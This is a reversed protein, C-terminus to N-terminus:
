LCKEWAMKYRKLYEEESIITKLINEKGKGAEARVEPLSGLAKKIVDAIREKDGDAIFVVAGLSRVEEVIGVNTSVIPLGAAGAEFFVMGYGEYRSTHLFISASEYYDKLEERWGEFFVKDEIRLRGARKKLSEKLSGDGVIILATKELSKLAEAFSQLALSVNKEKELRGVMLIFNEFDPYKKRLFNKDGNGYFSPDTIRIPLVVPTNISSLRNVVISRKIRESVVRVGSARPLLFKAMIVRIKNLFSEKFFYPNLFDTHVQIHFKAKLKRAMLFAVLGSEFPDQASVIDIKKPLFFKSFSLADVIWFVKSISNTPYVYVNPSIRKEQFGKGTFCIIHLEEVISGHSIVRDQVASGDEFIRKETGITLVRM